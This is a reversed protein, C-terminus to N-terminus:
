DLYLSKDIETMFCGGRCTITANLRFSEEDISAEEIPLWCLERDIELISM